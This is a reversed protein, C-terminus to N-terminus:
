NPIINFQIATLKIEDPSGVTSSINAVIVKFIEDVEDVDTFTMTFQTYDNYLTRLAEVTIRNYIMSIAMTRINGLPAYGKLKTATDFHPILNALDSDPTIGIIPIFGVGPITLAPQNGTTGILLLTLSTLQRGRTQTDYPIDAIYSRTFIPDDVEIPDTFTPDDELAAKVFKTLDYLAKQSADVKKDTNAVIVIRFAQSNATIAESTSVGLNRGTFQLSDDTTVYIYNHASRSIINDPPDGFIIERAKTDDNKLFVTVDNKLRDIIRLIAKNTDLTPVM